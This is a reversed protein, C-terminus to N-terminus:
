CDLLKWRISEHRSATQESLYPNFAIVTSCYYRISIFQDHPHTSFRLLQPCSSRCIRLWRSPHLEGGLSSAGQQMESEVISNERKSSLLLTKLLLYQKRCAHMLSFDAAGDAAEFCHTLLGYVTWSKHRAPPLEFKM